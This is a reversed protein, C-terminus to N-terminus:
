IEIYYLSINFFNGLPIPKPVIKLFMKHSFSFYNIKNINKKNRIFIIDFSEYYLNNVIVRLAGILMVRYYLLSVNLM